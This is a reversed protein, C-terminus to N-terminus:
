TVLLFPTMERYWSQVPIAIANMMQRISLNLFVAKVLVLSSAVGAVGILSGIFSGVIHFPTYVLNIRFSQRTLHLSNM